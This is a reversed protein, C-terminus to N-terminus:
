FPYLFFGSCTCGAGLCRGSQREHNRKFHGCGERECTDQPQGISTGGGGGAIGPVTVNNSLPGGGRGRDQAAKRFAEVEAKTAVPTASTITYTQLHLNMLTQNMDKHFKTHQMQYNQEVNAGCISCIYSNHSGGSNHPVLMNYYMPESMMPPQPADGTLTVTYTFNISDGNKLPPIQRFPVSADGLVPEEDLPSDDYHFADDASGSWRLQTPNSM